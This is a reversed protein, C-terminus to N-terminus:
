KPWFKVWNREQKTNNSEVFNREHPVLNWTYHVHLRSALLPRKGCIKGSIKRPTSVIYHMTTAQRLQQSSSAELMHSTCNNEVEPQGLKRALLRHSLCSFTTSLHEDRLHLVIRASASQRASSWNREVVAKRKCLSDLGASRRAGSYPSENPRRFATQGTKKQTLSEATETGRSEVWIVDLLCRAFSPSDRFLSEVGSGVEARHAWHETPRDFLRAVTEHIKIVVICTCTRVRHNKTRGFREQFTM